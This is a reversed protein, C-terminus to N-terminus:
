KLKQWSTNYNRVIVIPTGADGSGSTLDMLSALLDIKNRPTTGQSAMNHYLDEKSKILDEIQDETYGEDIFAKLKIENPQGLLGSTFAPSTVPDAFEWIKTTADKYCGDGYIMVEVHKGLNSFYEQIETVLHKAKETNPFLKIKEETSKNSGLLGYETKDSCFSKLTAWSGPISMICPRLSCDINFYKGFDTYNITTEIKVSSCGENECIEKYYDVYNMGTIPHNTSVNGVEDTNPMFIRIANTSRAFAKLIMAFRNRSYIPKMLRIPKNLFNKLRIEKALDDITVYNGQARAVVSETIGIIDGDEIVPSVTDIVIKFIDDGDRILPTRLAFSQRGIM